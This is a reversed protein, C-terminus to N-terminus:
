PMPIEPFASSPNRFPHDRSFCRIESLNIGQDAYSLRVAIASMVSICCSRIFRYRVDTQAADMDTNQVPQRHVAATVPIRQFRVLGPIIPFILHGDNSSASSHLVLIHVGPYQSPGPFIRRVPDRSPPLTQRSSWDLSSLFIAHLPLCVRRMPFQWLPCIRM